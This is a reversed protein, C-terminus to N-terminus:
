CTAAAVYAHAIAEASKTYDRREAPPLSRWTLDMVRKEEATLQDYNWYGNLEYRFIQNARWGLEALGEWNFESM